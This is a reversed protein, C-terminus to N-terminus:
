AEGELNGIAPVIDPRGAQQNSPLRLACLHRRGQELDMPTEGEHQKREIRGGPTLRFLPGLSVHEPNFTGM